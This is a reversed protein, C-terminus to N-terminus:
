NGIGDQTPPTGMHHTCLNGLHYWPANKRPLIEMWKLMEGPCVLFLMQSVTVWSYGEENYPRSPGKLKYGHKTTNVSELYSFSLNEVEM